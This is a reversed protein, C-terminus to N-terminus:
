SSAESTAPAAAVASGSVETAASAPRLPTLDDLFRRSPRPRHAPRHRRAPRPRAPVAVACGGICIPVPHPPSSSPAAASSRVSSPRTPAITTVLAIRGAALDDFRHAADVAGDPYLRGAPTRRLRPRDVLATRRLPPTRADLVHDKVGPLHQLRPAVLRRALKGFEGGGTMVTGILKALRILARAHPKREAEYTDLM